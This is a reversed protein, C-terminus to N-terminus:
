RGVDLEVENEWVWRKMGAEVLSRRGLTLMETVELGDETKSGPHAMESLSGLTHTLLLRHGARALRSALFFSFEKGLIRHTCRYIEPRRNPRPERRQRGTRRHRKLAMGKKGFHSNM